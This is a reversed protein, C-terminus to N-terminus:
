NVVVEGVGGGLYFGCWTMLVEVQLLFILVTYLVNLVEVSVDM